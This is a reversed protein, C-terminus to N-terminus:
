KEEIEVGLCIHDFSKDVIYTRYNARIRFNYKKEGTFFIEKYNKLLERLQQMPFREGLNSIKIKLEEATSTDLNYRWDFFSFKFSTDDPTENFKKLTKSDKLKENINNMEEKTVKRLMWDPIERVYISIKDNKGILKKVVWQKTLYTTKEGKENEIGADYSDVFKILKYYGYFYDCFVFDGENFSKQLSYLKKNVVIKTM